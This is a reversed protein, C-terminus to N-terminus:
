IEHGTTITMTKRGQGDNSYNRKWSWNVGVQFMETREVDNTRTRKYPYSKKTVARSDEVMSGRAMLLNAEPPSILIQFSFAEHEVSLWKSRPAVQGAYSTKRPSVCGCIVDGARDKVLVYM